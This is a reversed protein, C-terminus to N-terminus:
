WGRCGEGATKFTFRRVVSSFAALSVARRLWDGAFKDPVHGHYAFSPCFQPFGPLLPILPLPFPSAFSSTQHALNGVNM